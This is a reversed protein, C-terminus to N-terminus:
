NAAETAILKWNPDRSTLDRMFTWIDTVERVKKPDGDIIRGEKDKTASIIQSIFKVTVSASKAKLTAEILTAKDIGVLTSEVSEGRSERDSIAREFGEFVDSGLLSKLAKRDGNAFATVIMDYAMRAGDLFRQPTFDRDIAVIKELAKALPTGKEAVGEWIPPRDADEDHGLDANEERGPLTVVNGSNNADVGGEAPERSSFPDFPKREHGTRRGLVGRLRWFIIIAVALLVLNLPDFTEGM